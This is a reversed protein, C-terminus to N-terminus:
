FNSMIAERKAIKLIQQYKEMDVYTFLQAFQLETADTIEEKTPHFRFIEISSPELTLYNQYGESDAATRLQNKEELSLPRIDEKVTAQGFIQSEFSFLVISGQPVGNKPKSRCFYYRHPQGRKGDLWDIAGKIGVKFKFSLDARSLSFVCILKESAM